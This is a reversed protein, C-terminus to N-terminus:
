VQHLAQDWVMMCRLSCKRKRLLLLLRTFRFWDAEKKFINGRIESTTATASMPEMGLVSLETEVGPEYFKRVQFGINSGVDMYIRQMQLAM